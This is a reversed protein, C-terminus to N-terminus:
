VSALVEQYEAKHNKALTLIEHLDNMMAEYISFNGSMHKRYTERVGEANTRVREVTHPRVVQSNIEKMVSAFLKFKETVKGMTSLEKLMSLIDWGATEEVTYDMIRELCDKIDEKAQIRMLGGDVDDESAANAYIYALRGDLTSRSGDDEEMTDSGVSLEVSSINKNKWNTKGARALVFERVSLGYAPNYGNGEQEAQRISIYVSDMLDEFYRLGSQNRIERKIDNYNEEIYRSAITNEEFDVQVNMRAILQNM